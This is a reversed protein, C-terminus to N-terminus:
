WILSELDDADAKAATALEDLLECLEDFEWTNPLTERMKGLGNVLERFQCMAQWFANAYVNAHEPGSQDIPVLGLKVEAVARLSVDGKARAYEAVKAGLPGAIFAAAKSHGAAKWRAALRLRPGENSADAKADAELSTSVEDTPLVTM